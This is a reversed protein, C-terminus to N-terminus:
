DRVFFADLKAQKRGDQAADEVVERVLRQMDEPTRLSEVAALYM